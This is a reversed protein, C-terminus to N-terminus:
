KLFLSVTAITLIYFQLGWFPSLCFLKDGKETKIVLSDKSM